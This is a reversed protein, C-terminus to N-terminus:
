GRWRRSAQMRGGLGLAVGSEQRHDEVSFDESHLGDGKLVYGGLPNSCDAVSQFPSQSLRQGAPTWCAPLLYATAM